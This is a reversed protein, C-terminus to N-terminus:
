RLRRQAGSRLTGESLAHISELTRILDARLTSAELAVQFCATRLDVSQQEVRGLPQRGHLDEIQQERHGFVAAHLHVADERLAADRRALRDAPEGLALAVLEDRVEATLTSGLTRTTVPGDPTPLPVSM